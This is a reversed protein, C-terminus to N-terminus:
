SSKSAPNIPFFIPRDDLQGIGFTAIFTQTEESTLFQQLQTAAHHRLPTSRTVPVVGVLYPRRLAPDGQVMLVLGQNEMRGSLFPIRGVLTYANMAAARKLVERHRDVLLISTQEESLEVGTRNMVDKLVGQAGLSAHVLFRSNSSRIRRIAEGADTLGRIGAPDTPPGVIVLDNRLWPQLNELYGDAALNVITDSSHITVLDIGGQRVADDIVQKPGTAVMEITHGTAEEFRHSLAQWLGTHTMGGVVAVHIKQPSGPAATTEPANTPPRCSAIILAALALGSWVPLYRGTKDNM